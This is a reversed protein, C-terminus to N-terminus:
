ILSFWFITRAAEGSVENCTTLPSSLPLTEIKGCNHTMTKRNIPGKRLVFTRYFWRQRDAWVKQFIQSILKKQYKAHVLTKILALFQCLEIIRPFEWKPCFPDFIAWFHYKQWYKLFKILNKEFLWFHFINDNINRRLSKIEFFEPEQIISEALSIAPNKLTYYRTFSTPFLTSKQM